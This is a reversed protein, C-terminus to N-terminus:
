RRRKLWNLPDLTMATAGEAQRIQFEIHPGEQTAEGGSRGIVEGKRVRVGKPVDLQSLYLYLTYFGGGHDIIVTEGWTGLPEASKVVGDAVARVPTGVPAKIGIGLHNIRTGDPGPARGWRYALAGQVPWDLTGLDAETIGAAGAATRDGAALARRRERELAELLDTLQQEARALSDLRSSARRQSSRAQRLSQQRERELQLYRDLEAGRESRREALERQIQLLSTRQRGIRNRLDEVEQVLARDQRSVLYLYKYRSLLDGFSEATLLVQFTWLPGRKYIEVLRRRLVAQKEALGDETLVLDLSVTDVQEGLTRLQRDIESVLRTTVTKQRELNHIESELTHAQNRLRDLEAELDNRERRIDNLRQQNERIQRTVGQGFAPSATITLLLAAGATTVPWRRLPSPM